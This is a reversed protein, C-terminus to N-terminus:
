QLRLDEGVPGLSDPVHVPLSFFFTSGKGLESEIWVRGGHREILDHVIALGLGVGGKRRSGASLPQFFKEFIRDQDAKDIGCGTDTISIAVVSNPGEGDQRASLTISGGEPTAKISNSILNTAVQVVRVPDAMVHPLGSPLSIRLAIKKTNAWPRMGDAAEQLIDLVLTPAPHVAMQGSRIKSFDLIEDIIQRLRMSNRCSIELFRREQDNLKAATTESMLELTSCISALPARLEHTVSSMFEEQMKQAERLKTIYPVVGMTGVVRGQEDQVLATSRRLTEMLGPDGAVDVELNAPQGPTLNMGKSLAVMQEESNISDMIPKGAMDNLRRGAIEEAVADMHLVKGQKDVVVKGDAVTEMVSETRLRENVAMQKEGRLQTTAQNVRADLADKVTRVIQGYLKAREQPDAVAQDVLGKIFNGFGAGPEPLPPAPRPAPPKPQAPVPPAAAAPKVVRAYHHSELRLHQVGRQRLFRAVDTDGTKAAPLAALECFAVLEHAQTLSSLALSQVRYRRFAEILADPIQGAEAFVAGNVLLRGDALSFVAEACRLEQLLRTLLPATERLGASAVPHAAHYLSVLKVASSLGTLFDRCAALAERTLPHAAAPHDQNPVASDNM